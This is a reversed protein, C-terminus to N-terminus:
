SEPKYGHEGILPVFRCGEIRHTLATGNMNKILQLEQADPPGVPVVLRGGAALQQWLADPVGPAAAAVVIADYPAFEPVGASGVGVIVRVNTYGLRALLAHAAEALAPHREISFVEQTLEALIATQYGSGTGVELVKDKSSLALVETMLAVIYPQSITQGEAIPIPHDEYAQERYDASVFEHRPVRAMANLVREDRIGRAQLQGAVMQLREPSYADRDSDTGM